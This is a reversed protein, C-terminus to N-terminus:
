EDREFGASYGLRVALARDERADHYANSRRLSRLTREKADADFADAPLLNALERAIFDRRRSRTSIADPWDDPDTM